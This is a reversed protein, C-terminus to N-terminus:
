SVLIAVKCAGTPSWIGWDLRLDMRFWGNVSEVEFSLSCYFRHTVRSEKYGKLNMHVFAMGIHDVSQCVQARGLPATDDKLRGQSVTTQGKWGQLTARQAPWVMLIGWVSYWLHGFIIWSKIECHRRWCRQCLHPSWANQKQVKWNYPATGWGNYNPNIIKKLYAFTNFRPCLLGVTKKQKKKSEGAKGGLRDIQASHGEWWLATHTNVQWIWSFWLDRSDPM